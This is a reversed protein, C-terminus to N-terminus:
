NKATEQRRAMFAQVVQMLGEAATKVVDAHDAAWDAFLGADFAVPDSSGVEPGLIDAATFGDWGDVFRCLMPVDVGRVLLHLETEVPRVIRLKRKGDELTVWSRRQELLQARLRSIDDSAAM